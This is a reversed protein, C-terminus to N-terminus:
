RYEREVEEFDKLTILIWLGLSIISYFIVLPYTVAENINHALMCEETPCGRDGITVFSPFHSFYEVHSDIGYGAYIQVHVQEHMFGLGFFGLLVATAFVISMAMKMKKDRGRAEM